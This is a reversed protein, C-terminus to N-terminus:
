SRDISRSLSAIAKSMEKEVTKVSLGARAAIELYTLGEIRHALFIKRTRPKLQAVASELRRLLDRSEVTGIQDVYGQNATAIASSSREKLAKARAFDRLLNLSIRRLFALPQKIHTLNEPPMRLLRVFTEQMLERATEGCGSKRTLQRLLSSSHERYLERVQAAIDNHEGNQFGRDIEQTSGTFADAAPSM